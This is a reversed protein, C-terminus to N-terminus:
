GKGEKRGRFVEMNGETQLICMARIATLKLKRLAVELKLAQSGQLVQAKCKSKARVDTNRFGTFVCAPCHEGLKDFDVEAIFQWGKWSEVPQILQAAYAVCYISLRPISGM